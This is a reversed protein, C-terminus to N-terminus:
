SLRLVQVAENKRIEAANPPRVILCDAQRFSRLMSSDQRAFATATLQGDKATHLTGRLYDQRADNAPLDSGSAAILLRENPDLGLMAFILPKLFLIACVLASVPNGPLGLVHQRGKRGYMFPKGPRMAIKWFDIEVGANRLAEQVHDHDGVSAGGTLVIVDAASLKRVARETARLDDRVIGADITLAGAAIAMARLAHSNSSVIQGARPRQGPLVLEDGTALVAVVPKRRVRVAAANLAAALGIDRPNLLTGAPILAEGRKFDLGERRVNQGAAVARQIEVANGSAAANEQIVVADAGPPMPAGTFIRLAERSMIKGRFVQGAAATGIVRLSCPVHMIDAARVAYGDMASADFPPQNRAANLPQATVRGLADALAVKEQPNAKVGKLIRALADKVPLLAV